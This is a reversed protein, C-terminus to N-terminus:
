RSHSPRASNSGSKSDCWLSPVVLNVPTRPIGREDHRIKSEVNQVAKRVIMHLNIKFGPVAGVEYIRLAVFAAPHDPHERHFQIAHNENPVIAMDIDQRLIYEAITQITPKDHTLLEPQDTQIGAEKWKQVVSLGASAYREDTLSPRNQKLLCIAARRPARAIVREGATMMDGFANMRINDLGALRGSGAFIEVASFADWPFDQWADAKRSCMAVIGRLGRAQLVRVLAETRPYESRVYVEFRYGLENTIEEFVAILDSKQRPYDDRHWIVLAMGEGAPLRDKSWRTRALRSLAPDPIYGLLHATERVKARTEAAIDPHNGLAMSVTSKALNMHRAIDIIRIRQM